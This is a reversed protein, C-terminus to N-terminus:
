NVAFKVGTQMFSWLPPCGMQFLRSLSPFCISYNHNFFFGSLLRLVM